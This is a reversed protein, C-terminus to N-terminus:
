FAGVSEDYLCEGRWVGIRQGPFACCVVICLARELVAGDWWLPSLQGEMV